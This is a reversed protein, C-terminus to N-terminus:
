PPASRTDANRGTGRFLGFVPGVWTLYGSARVRGASFAAMVDDQGLLLARATAVDAFYFVADAPERHRWYFAGAALEFALDLEPHPRLALLEHAETAGDPPLACRLLVCGDFHSFMAPNLHAELTAQLSNRDHAAINM